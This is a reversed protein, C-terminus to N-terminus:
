AYERMQSRYHLHPRGMRLLEPPPEMAPGAKLSDEITLLGACIPGPPLEGKDDESDWLTPGLRACEAPQCACGNPTSPDGIIHTM